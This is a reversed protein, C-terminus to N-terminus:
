RQNVWLVETFSELPSEICNPYALICDGGVRGLREADHYMEHVTRHNSDFGEPLDESPRYM